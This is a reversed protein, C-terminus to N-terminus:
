LYVYLCGYLGKRTEVGQLSIGILQRFAARKIGRSVQEWIRMVVANPRWKSTREAGWFM